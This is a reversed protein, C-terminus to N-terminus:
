CKSILLIYGQEKNDELCKRLWAHSSPLGFFLPFHYGLARTLPGREGGGEGGLEMFRADACVFMLLYIFLCFFLYFM